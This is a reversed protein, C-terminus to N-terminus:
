DGHTARTNPPTQLNVLNVSRASTVTTDDASKTIITAQVGLEPCNSSVVAYGSAITLAPDCIINCSEPSGADRSCYTLQHQADMSSVITCSPLTGFGAYFEVGVTCASGSRMNNIQLVTVCNNTAGTRSCMDTARYRALLGSISQPTAIARSRAPAGDASQASAPVAALCSLVAAAAISRFLM